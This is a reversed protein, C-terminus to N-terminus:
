LAHPEPFCQYTQGERGKYAAERQQEDKKIGAYQDNSQLTAHLVGIHRDSASKAVQGVRNGVLAGRGLASAENAV